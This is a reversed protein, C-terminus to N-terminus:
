RRRGSGPCGVPDGSPCAPTLLGASRINRALVQKMADRSAFGPAPCRANRRNQPAIGPERLKRELQAAALELSAAFGPQKHRLLRRVYEMNEVAQKVSKMAM